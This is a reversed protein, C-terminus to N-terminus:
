PLQGGGSSQWTQLALMLSQMKQLDDPSYNLQAANALAEATIEAPKRSGFLGLQRAALTPDQKMQYTESVMLVYDTRYDASLSDPSTDVYQVPSIVWGYYLGIGLGIVIALLLAIWRRM